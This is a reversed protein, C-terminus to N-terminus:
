EAEENAEEYNAMTESICFLEDLEPPLMEAVAESSMDGYEYYDDNGDDWVGCFGMGPEDYYARVEFGQAELTEYVGIPPAYASVFSLTTNTQGAELVEPDGDTGCDWKTGWKSVCFDYWNAHGYTSLNHMTQEHLKIQEPEDDAGVRGAVINLENPVPIAYSCFESRNFAEVLEKLKAPDPHSVEVVNNCYNPM